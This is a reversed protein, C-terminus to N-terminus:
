LRFLAPGTRRSRSRKPPRRPSPDADTRLTGLQNCFDMGIEDSASWDGTAALGTRTKIVRPRQARPLWGAVSPVHELGVPNAEPWSGVLFGEEQLICAVCPEGIVPIEAFPEGVAGEAGPPVRDLPDDGGPSANQSLVCGLVRNDVKPLGALGTVIGSVLTPVADGAAAHAEGAKLPASVLLSEAGVIPGVGDADFAVGPTSALSSM